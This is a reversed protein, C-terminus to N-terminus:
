SINKHLKLLSLPTHVAIKSHKYDSVNRTIIIEIGREEASFNQLADEFDTFKSNLARDVHDGTLMIIDLILRLKRLSSQAIDKSRLKRLLYYINAFVLPTTYGALQNNECLSMIQASADYFPQRQALVDLIVDSDVFVKKM